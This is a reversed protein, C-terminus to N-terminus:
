ATDFDVKIREFFRAAMKRAAAEVLRSGIQALKGGIHGNIRYVLRTEEGGDGAVQELNVSASGKAFGAAGGKVAVDLRYSEPEVVDNVSIAAKFTAKVPGVKARVEAEYEGDGVLSMSECGDLCRALVEPDNLAQWVRDRPQAIRSEGTQEM